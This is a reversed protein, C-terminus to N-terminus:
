VHARGIEMKLERDVVAHNFRELEENRRALEESRRLLDTEARRRATIDRSLVIFRRPAGPEGPKM